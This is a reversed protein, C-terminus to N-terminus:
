IFSEVGQQLERKNPMKMSFYHKMNLRVTKPNFHINSHFIKNHFCPFNQNNQDQNYTVISSLKQNAEITTPIVASEPVCIKRWKKM